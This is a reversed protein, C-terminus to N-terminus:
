GGQRVLPARLAEGLTLLSEGLHARATDSLGKAALARKLDAELRQAVQRHVPRVDTPAASAPKLLTSSLRRLHERQLNRRLSDVDNGTKLEAWVADSLRGQLEAYSLLTRPDAVKTEADALRTAVADSMLTDLAGRQLGLVASALSFDANPVLGQRGFRDFQDIGLRSMFGPDFRFSSSAFVEGLLLDLAERQRVAPVPTVLAQGAGALQRSTTVGGIHKAVLPVTASFSALGRQLNRRYLTLDDEAALTRKQTLTWLERALTLRKRAHVLPDNGLDGQNAEPDGGMTEEDTGYALMPDRESRAAHAALASKETAAPFERYGYEIAWLDYAGLTPMHYNAVAENALPLNLANYDMVSNSIGRTRTFAEDRLQAPTIGMSAKFNHRLGLAHGVEHMVVDKLAEAIFREAEPGQPDIAGRASLLEFGFAAQQLAEDGYQCQMLRQAFDPMAAPLRPETDGTFSRSLRAWNEPIIAAGRLIEGTRPDAQSPGVATAGPGEMAFWRVALVRTGELSSEDSDAAQQEVALANRFGAREFALNWELIGARVPARWAEPINRDMVVRIPEKPESVEAAPDKKELRWRNILHQRRGDPASGELDVFPATFYGVRQDALRPKMPEAPLPSLTYALSLFLSRADPLTTPPSPQMAPNSPPMGPMAVPPVPLKPVAFHARVTFSTGQASTRAREITTNSRDLSYPMRFASELRTQMGPIDGGLLAVADVLLSKREPHPASVVSTAALLSDSYSEAVARALPSGPKARAHLNRAVLQVSNGARRLVVVQEDGMLGPLFFREGLGSALSTGLFFPQDLRDAPIELWTKDDRTWFPLFGDSRKADKIVEAFPPPTGPPRAAPASASGAPGSAARAAGPASAPAAAAVAQPNAGVAAQPGTPTACGALTASLLAAVATALPSPAFSSIPM